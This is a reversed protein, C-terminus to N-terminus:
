SFNLRATQAESARPATVTTFSTVIHAHYIFINQERM